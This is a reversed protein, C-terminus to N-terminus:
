RPLCMAEPQCAPLASLDDVPEECPAGRIASVCAMVADIDFSFPCEARGLDELYRTGITRMCAVGETPAIRGCAVERECHTLTVEDLVARVVTGDEAPVPGIAIRDPGPREPPAPEPPPEIPVPFGSGPTGTPVQSGIETARM